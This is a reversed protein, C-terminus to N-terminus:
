VVAFVTKFTDKRCSPCKVINHKMMNTSCTKCLVNLCESCDILTDVNNDTCSVKDHCVMCIQDDYNLFRKIRKITIHQNNQIEKVSLQLWNDKEFIIVYDENPNLGIMAYFRKVIKNQTTLISLRKQSGVQPLMVTKSFRSLNEVSKIFKDYVTFTYEPFSGALIQSLTDM